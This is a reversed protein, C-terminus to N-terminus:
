HKGAVMMVVLLAGGLLLLTTTSIGGVSSPVNFGGTAGAPLQYMTSGYPSTSIYQGPSLQPVGFRTNLIKSADNLGATITSWIDSGSGSSSATPITPFGSSSTGTSPMGPLGLWSLDTVNPDTGDGLGYM